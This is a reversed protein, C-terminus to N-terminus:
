IPLAMALLGVAVGVGAAGLGIRLARARDRSRADPDVIHETGGIAGFNFVGASGFAVCFKFWAQLYGTAAMAAPLGVLARAADPADLTILIALTAFTLFVGVHGSRRRRAIEAPGINCVGARYGASSPPAPEEFAGAAM